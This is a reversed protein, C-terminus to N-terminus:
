VEEAISQLRRKLRQVDDETHGAKRPEARDTVFDLYATILDRVARKFERFESATAFATSEKQGTVPEREAKPKERSEFERPQLEDLLRDVCFELFEVRSTDGRNQDLKDILREDVILVQKPSMSSRRDQKELIRKATFYHEKDLGDPRGEQEWITYALERVEEETPM